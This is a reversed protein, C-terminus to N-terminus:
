LARFLSRRRRRDSDRAASWARRTEPNNMLAMDILMSVDYKQGEQITAARQPEVVMAGSPNLQKGISSPLTWERDPRLPAWKDPNIARWDDFGACAQILTIALIAVVSMSGLSLSDGNWLQSRLM